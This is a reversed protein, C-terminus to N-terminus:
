IGGGTFSVGILPYIEIYQVWLFYKMAYRENLEEFTSPKLPENNWHGAPYLKILAVIKKKM